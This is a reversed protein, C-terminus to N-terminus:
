ADSQGKVSCTAEEAQALIELAEKYKEPSLYDLLLIGKLHDMEHQICTALLGDAEIEETTDEPTQFRVRVKAPRTVMVSLGPVSLCGEDFTSKEESTWTLQPNIMVLAKTSGVMGDRCYDEDIVLMRKSLGVQPAALGCGQAERMTEFMDRALQRVDDDIKPVPKAVERLKPHPEKLVKLTTMCGKGQM